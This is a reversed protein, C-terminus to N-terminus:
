QSSSTRISVCTYSMQPPINCKFRIVVDLCVVLPCYVVRRFAVCTKSTIVILIAALENRMCYGAKYTMYVRDMGDQHEAGLLQIYLALADWDENLM